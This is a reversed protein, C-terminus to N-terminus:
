RPAAGAAKSVPGSGSYKIQAQIEANWMQDAAITLETLRALLSDYQSQSLTGPKGLKGIEAMIAAQKTLLAAEQKASQAEYEHEATSANKNQWYANGIKNYLNDLRKVFWPTEARELIHWKAQSEQWDAEVKSWERTLEDIQRQRDDSAAHFEGRWEQARSLGHLRFQVEAAKARLTSVRSDTKGGGSRAPHDSGPGPACQVVPEGARQQVVHALEHALLRGGQATPAYKGGAFVIDRGVTYARANLGSASAAAAADTHVRVSSFDHGFRSEMSARTNADLAQGPAQVVAEVDVSPAIQSAPAATRTLQRRSTQVTAYDARNPYTLGPTSVVENAVRDAEEEHADAASGVELRAQVATEAPAYLRVKAFDFSTRPAAQDSLASRKAESATRAGSGPLRASKPPSPRFRQAFSRM